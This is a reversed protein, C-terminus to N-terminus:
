TRPFERPPQRVWDRLLAILEAARTRRREADRGVAAEPRPRPESVVVLPGLVLRPHSYVAAIAFGGEQLTLTERLDGGTLSGVHTVRTRDPPEFEALLTENENEPILIFTPTAADEGELPYVIKPRTADGLVQVLADFFPDPVKLDNPFEIQSWRARFDDRLDDLWDTL